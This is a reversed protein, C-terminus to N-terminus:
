APKSSVTKGEQTGPNCPYIMIGWSEGERRTFSAPRTLVQWIERDKGWEQAKPVTAALEM